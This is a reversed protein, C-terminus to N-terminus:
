NYTNEFLKRLMKYKYLNYIYIDIKRDNIKQYYFFGSIQGTKKLFGFQLKSEAGSIM